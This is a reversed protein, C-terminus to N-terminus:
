PNHPPNWRQPKRSLIPKTGPRKKIESRAIANPEAHDAEGDHGVVGRMIKDGGNIRELEVYLVPNVRHERMLPRFRNEWRLGTFLTSDARPSQGSFYLATTWWGKAGYELETWAALFGGAGRQTAYVPSVAVELAGPEELDHSYTVFYPREQAHLPVGMFATVAVAGVSWRAARLIFIF